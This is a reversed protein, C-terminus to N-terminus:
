NQTSVLNNTFLSVSFSLDVKSGPLKSPDVRKRKPQAQIMSATSAPVGVATAAAATPDFTEFQIM